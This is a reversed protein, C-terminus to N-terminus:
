NWADSGSTILWCARLCEMVRGGGAACCRFSLYRVARYCSVPENGSGSKDEGLGVM